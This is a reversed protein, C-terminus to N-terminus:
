EGKEKLKHSLVALSSALNMNEIVVDEPVDLHTPVFNWIAKIGHNILVNVQQQAVEAPVTLIAIKVKLSQVVKGMEYISHITKGNIKTSILDKNVDFGAVINFGFEEFGKYNMFAKGLHGVGVVIANQKKEYGLFNQIDQILEDINRGSKPKGQAKTVVQLDKRVQEESLGLGAAIIPASINQNDQNRVSLLFKLYIPFREVQKKSIKEM